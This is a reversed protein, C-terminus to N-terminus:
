KSSEMPQLHFAVIKSNTILHQANLVTCLRIEQMGAAINRNVTLDVFDWRADKDRVSNPTQKWVSTMASWVGDCLLRHCVAALVHMGILWYSLNVAVEYLENVLQMLLGDRFGLWFVLAILLGTAAISALGAYMGLHVLRAAMQQFRGADPPLVSRQTKAVYVYRIPLIVLFLTAFGIELRLLASDELQRVNDM